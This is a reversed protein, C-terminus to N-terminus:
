PNVWGACSMGLGCGLRLRVGSLVLKAPAAHLQPSILDDQQVVFLDLMKRCHTPLTEPWRVFKLFFM